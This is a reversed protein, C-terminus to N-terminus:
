TNCNGKSVNDQMCKRRRKTSRAGHFVFILAQLSMLDQVTIKCDKQEPFSKEVRTGTTLPDWFDHQRQDEWILQMSKPMASELLETPEAQFVSPDEEWVQRAWELAGKYTLNAFVKSETGTCFLLDDGLKIAIHISKDQLPDPVAHRPRRPRTGGHFFLDQCLHCWATMGYERREVESMIAFDVQRGCQSCTPRDARGAAAGFNASSAREAAACFDVFTKLQGRANQANAWEVYDPHNEFVDQFTKRRHKGFNFITSASM